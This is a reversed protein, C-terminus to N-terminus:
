VKGKKLEVDIKARAHGVKQVAKRVAAPKVGMKKAEYGVEYPQKAAVERRDQKLGRSTHKKAATKGTAMATEKGVPSRGAACYSGGEPSRQRKGSLGGGLWLRVDRAIEERVAAVVSEFSMEGFTRREKTRARQEKGVTTAAMWWEVTDETVAKCGAVIEAGAEIWEDNWTQGPTM